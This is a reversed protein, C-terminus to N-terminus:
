KEHEHPGANFACAWLHMFITYSWIECLFMNEAHIPGRTGDPAEAARFTSASNKMDMRARM